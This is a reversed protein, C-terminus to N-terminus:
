FDVIVTPNFDCTAVDFAVTQKKNKGGIVATVTVQYNGPVLMLPNEVTGFEQHYRFPVCPLTPTVSVLPVDNFTGVTDVGPKNRNGVIRQIKIQKVTTLPVGGDRVLIRAGTRVGEGCFNRTVDTTAGTVTDSVYSVTVQGLIDRDLNAPLFVAGLDGEGAIHGPQLIIPFSPVGSLAFEVPNQTISFGTINLPCNGTNSVPFPLTTSCAGINQMVEPPFPLDPPVDISAEPTAATVVMVVVGEDPDDSLIVLDCSKPGDSTPTFRITLPLCFDHSVASPFPNNVITFDACDAVNPLGPQSLFAASVNLTCLGTNCVSVQKEAQVGGCVDGFDTSGTANIDGPPANGSVNVLRDALLGDNETRSDITLTASNPGIASPQFRIPVATSNGDEILLPFSVVGPVLFDADNSVIGDVQLNCGGGNSITLDLDKHDGVCVNGFNGANAMLTDITAAPANCRYTIDIQPQDPDDSVIRIVAVKSGTMGPTCRVTFDMHAGPSVLVPTAPLDDVTIDGSGSIREVSTVELDATGNNFVTLQNAGFHGPCVNGFENPANVQINPTCASPTDFAEIPNIDFEDITVASFGMGMKAFANWILCQNVGGNTAGDAELIGDRGELFDPNDPSFKMGDIVLLDATRGGTDFGYKRVLNARMLWLTEAWLEGTNHVEPSCLGLDVPQPPSDCDTDFTCAQFLCSNGAGCDEDESCTDTNDNSCFGVACAAGDTIDAYTRTFVSQDTSYPQRRIGGGFLWWGLEYNADLDDGPQAFFSIAFYDGWGENGVQFGQTPVLRSHVGHGFEHVIVPNDFDGDREPTALSGDHDCQFMQMRPSSGDGPTNMNANCLSADDPDAPARNDQADAQVPDGGSGGLGFNDSQFNGAAEDFGLRYFRDHLINNWYFLNTIAANVSVSPDMTLDLAPNFNESVTTFFGEGDDNDGDRDQKARVNNCRTTNRDAEGSGNWWDFHPDNHPFSAIGTFATDTRAVLGTSTGTPTNPNPSEDTFAQGHAPIHDYLTINQRWLVEGTQADLVTRFVNPTRADEVYVEWALRLEGPRRPFYVLGAVRSTAVERVGAAAAAADLAAQTEVAPATARESSQAGTACSELFASCATRPM